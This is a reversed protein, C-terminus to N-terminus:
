DNATGPAHRLLGFSRAPLRVGEGSISRWEPERTDSPLADETFVMVSGPAFGTISLPTETPSENVWFILDGVRVARVHDPHSSEVRHATAGPRAHRTWLATAHFVPRLAWGRDRFNWLGYKMLWGNPYYGEHLCWINFGAAGRGVGDIKFAMTWLAYNYEEMVPNILPGEARADQFGFEAVVFPKPPGPAARERLLDLRDQFFHSALPRSAVRFYRHSAFVDSLAYYDADAVCQSFWPFGNNTDDSGIIQIDLGRRDFEARVQRHIEVFTEFTVAGRVFHTNPENTLIWHKVCTYGRERILHEMLAGVARALRAPDSWPEAVSWEVGTVTVATGLRQYLDLSRYHSRMGDSDWDFTEWDGNPNWDKYWFFMRVWSPNMWAVRAKRLAFDEETVGRSTNEATYAWGDDEAGFGWLSPVAVQDTVSLTVPGAPPDREVRGTRRMAADAFHAVGRGNLVLCARVRATGEPAIARARLRDFEAGRAAPSSQEFEIRRGEADIFEATLYAGYGARADAVAADAEVMWVEGPSAQAEQWVRPFGVTAGDDVAIRAVPRDGHRAAAIEAHAGEATWGTLDESFDGNVLVSDVSAIAGLTLLAVCHLVRM